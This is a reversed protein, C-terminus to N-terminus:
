GQDVRAGEHLETVVDNEALLSTFTQVPEDLLQDVSEEARSRIESEEAQVSPKSMVKDTVEDVVRDRHNKETM